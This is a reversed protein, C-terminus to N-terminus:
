LGVSGVARRFYNDGGRVVSAVASKFFGKGTGATTYNSFQRSGSRVGAEQVSAYEVPSIVQYKLVSRKQHYTQGRLAGDKFPTRGSTKIGIEIDQAMHALAMDMAMANRAITRTRDDKIRLKTKLVAM